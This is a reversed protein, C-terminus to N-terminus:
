ADSAIARADVPFAQLGEENTAGRALAADLDGEAHLGIGALGAPDSTYLTVHPPPPSALAALLAAESPALREVIDRAARYFGALDARATAIITELVADDKARRLRYVEDGAAVSLDHSVLLADMASRLEDSKKFAKGLPKGISYGLVTLHHEQKRVFTVGAVVISERASLAGFIRPDVPVILTASPSLALGGNM